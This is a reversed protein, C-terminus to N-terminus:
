ASQRIVVEAAAFVSSPESTIRPLAQRAPAANLTIFDAVKQM